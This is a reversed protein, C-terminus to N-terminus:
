GLKGVVILRRVGLLELLFFFGIGALFVQQCIHSWTETSQIPILSKSVYEKGIFM